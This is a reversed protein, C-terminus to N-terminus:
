SDRHHDLIFDVDICRVDPLSARRAFPVVVVIVVLSSLSSPFRQSMGLLFELVLPQGFSICIVALSFTFLSRYMVTICSLMFMTAYSLCFWLKTIDPGDRCMVGYVAHLHPHWFQLGRCWLYTTLKM